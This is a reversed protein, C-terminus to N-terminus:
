IYTSLWSISNWVYLNICNEHCAIISDWLVPMGIYMYVFSLLFIFTFRESKKSYNINKSKSQYSTLNEYIAFLIVLYWEGNQQNMDIFVVSVLCHQLQICLLLKVYHINNNKTESSTFMFFFKNQFIKNYHKGFYYWCPIKCSLSAFSKHCKSNLQTQSLKNRSWRM